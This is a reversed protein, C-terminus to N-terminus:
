IGAQIGQRQSVICAQLKLYGRVLPDRGVSCRYLIPLDIKHYRLWLRAYQETITCVQM